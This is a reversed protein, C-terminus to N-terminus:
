HQTSGVAQWLEVPVGAEKALSLSALLLVSCGILWLKRIYRKRIGCSPESSLSQALDGHDISMRSSCKILVGASCFERRKTVGSAM